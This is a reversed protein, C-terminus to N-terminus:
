AGAQGRADAGAGRGDRVIFGDGESSAVLLKQGERFPLVAVVDAENPLDVMLRLPEGMGRGGPLNAGMLTFIRGNSAVFLVRDTTEALLTFRGEDGDKFKVEAGAAQHGKM